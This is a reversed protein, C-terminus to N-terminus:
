ATRRKPLTLPVWGCEISEICETEYPLTVSSIDFVLEALIKEDYYQGAHIFVKGVESVKYFSCTFVAAKM